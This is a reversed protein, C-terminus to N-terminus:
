NLIKMTLRRAASFSREASASTAPNVLILKFITIVHNIINKEPEPLERIKVLMDYFCVCDTGKLLLKFIELQSKLTGIDLDDSYNVELFQLEISYDEDNLVKILFSEMKQYVSFRPQNFRQEIANIMSDICEFYIQRYYDQSTTPYSPIGMGIEFRAPVRRKRTLTPESISPINKSKLLIAEYFLIFCEDSRIKQLVEKTLNALRQGSAACM